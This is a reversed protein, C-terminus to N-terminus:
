EAIMYDIARLEAASFSCGEADSLHFQHIDIDNEIDLLTDINELCEAKATDDKFKIDGGSEAAPKGGDDKEAYRDLLKKREADYAKLEADIKSTNKSIAYSVKIPLQKQSVQQLISLSELLRRNTIKM